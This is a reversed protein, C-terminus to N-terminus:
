LLQSRTLTNDCNPGRSKCLTVQEHLGDSSVSKGRQCDRKNWLPPAYVQPLWLRPIYPALRFSTSLVTILWFDACMFTLGSLSCFLAPTVPPHCSGMLHTLISLVLLAHFKPSVGLHSTSDVSTDCIAKRMSVVCTM